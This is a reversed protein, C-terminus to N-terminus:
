YYVVATAFGSLPDPHRMETDIVIGRKESTYVDRYTNPSSSEGPNQHAEEGLPFYSPPLNVLDIGIGSSCNIELGCNRSEKMEAVGKLNRTDEAAM